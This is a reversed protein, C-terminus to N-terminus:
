TQKWNATEYLVMSWRHKVVHLQAKGVAQRVKAEKHVSGQLAACVCDGSACITLLYQLSLMPGHVHARELHSFGQMTWM